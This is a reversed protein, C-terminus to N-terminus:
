DHPHYETGKDAPVRDSADPLIPGGTIARVALGCADEMATIARAVNRPPSEGSHPDTQPVRNRVREMFAKFDAENQRIWSIDHKQADTIVRHGPTETKTGEASM